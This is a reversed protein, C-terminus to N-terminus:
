IDKYNKINNNIFYIPYKKLNNFFFYINYKLYIIYKNIVIKRNYYLVNKKVKIANKKNKESNEALYVLGFNGSGIKKIFEYGEINFKNKKTAKKKM